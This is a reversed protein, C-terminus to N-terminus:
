KKQDRPRAKRPNLLEFLRFAFNPDGITLSGDPLGLIRSLSLAHLRLRITLRRAAADREEASPANLGLTFLDKTGSAHELVMQAVGEADFTEFIGQAVGEEIISALVPRFRQMWARAIGNFLDGSEPKHIAAFVPRTAHAQEVRLVAVRNLVKQLRELPNLGEEALIPRLGEYTEDSIREFLAVLLADKSEFHHYFMGKSFGAESIVDNLSTNDYGRELFIRFAEDLIEARRIEPHKIVRPM